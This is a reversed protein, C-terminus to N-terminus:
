VNYKSEINLRCLDQVKYQNQIAPLESTLDATHLVSVPWLASYEIIMDHKM